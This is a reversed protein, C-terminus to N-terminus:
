QVFENVGGGSLDKCEQNLSKSIVEELVVYGSAIFDMVTDDNMTPQIDTQM